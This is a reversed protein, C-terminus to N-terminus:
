PGVSQWGLPVVSLGRREAGLFNTWGGRTLYTRGNEVHIEAGHAQLQAIPTEPFRTPDSSRFVITREHTTAESLTYTVFLYYAGGYPFVYPSEYFGWCSGPCVVPNRVATSAPSWGALAHGISLTTVDHLGDAEQAVWVSYLLDRGDDMRLVMQDRGGPPVETTRRWHFLDDSRAVHGEQVGALNQAWYILVYGTTDRMAFPAWMVSETADPDHASMADPQETWPGLLSPATAHVFQTEHWPNAVGAASNAFVHWTGDDARVLTPENAYRDNSPTWVVRPEGDFVPVYSGPAATCGDACRDVLAADFPVGVRADLGADMAEIPAPEGCAALCTAGCLLVTTILMPRM